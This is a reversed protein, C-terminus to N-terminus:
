FLANDPEWRRVIFNTILVMICGVVSQFFTVASTMGFDTTGNALANMIYADITQTTPYLLGINKTVQYFLGTNSTMIGGLSMLTMISVMPLLMPLTIFWNKQWKSAGDLEAAEYLEQDMGALASLYIIAGYGVGKWLYTTLLIMPWKSADTYWEVSQHSFKVLLHNIVGTQGDFLSKVIFTVAIWSIFTPFIMITHSIKAFRQNICEHLCIALALYCITGIVTFLFWYGMTNRILRWTTDGSVLLIKFNNLGVWKSALIGQSYNFNKFAVLVGFMPMYSFMFIIIIAPLAMFFLTKHKVTNKLLGM